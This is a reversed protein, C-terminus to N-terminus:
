GYIEDTPYETSEESFVRLVEFWKATIMLVNSTDGANLQEVEIVVERDPELALLLSGVSGGIAQTGSGGGIPESIHTASETFTVGRAATVVGSDPAGGASDLLLNQVNVTTGGSPATDFGDYVRVYSEATVSVAGFVVATEGSDAPNSLALTATDGADANTFEESVIHAREARTWHWLETAASRCLSAQIEIDRQGGSAM